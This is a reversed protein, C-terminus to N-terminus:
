NKIQKNSQMGAKTALKLVANVYDDNNNYHYIAKYRSDDRDSWGNSKLYNAISYIADEMEFLDTKGNHNGDVAYSIFSSPLFQSIGFAGAWSGKMDNVPIKYQKEMKSLALLEKVAWDSKKVSRTKIKQDLAPLESTDGTFDERLSNKNLIVFQPQDAMATSMFVSAVHNDGLISGNKTEIWIIAAIIEKPVRYEKECKNLIDKYETIFQKAKRVSFYSYASSYDTKKLYGTINIKVYKENFKTQNNAILSLIFNSDIGAKLLKKVLPKFFLM